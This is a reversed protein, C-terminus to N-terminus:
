SGPKYHMAQIIFGPESILTDRSFHFEDQRRFSIPAATRRFGRYVAHRDQSFEWPKSRLSDILLKPGVGYRCGEDIKALRFAEEIAEDQEGQIIIFEDFIQEDVLVAPIHYIEEFGVEEQGFILVEVKKM